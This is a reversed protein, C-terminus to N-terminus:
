LFYISPTKFFWNFKFKMNIKKNRYIMWNTHIRSIFVNSFSNWIVKCVHFYKSILSDLSILLIIFPLWSNKPMTLKIAFVSNDIHEYKSYLWLIVLTAVNALLSKIEFKSVRNVIGSQDWVHIKSAIFVNLICHIQLELELFFSIGWM